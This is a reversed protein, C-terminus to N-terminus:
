FSLKNKANSNNHKKHDLIITWYIIKEYHYNLNDM